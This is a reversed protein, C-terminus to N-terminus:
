GQLCGAPPRSSFILVRLRLAIWRDKCGTFPKARSVPRQHVRCYMLAPGLLIPSM